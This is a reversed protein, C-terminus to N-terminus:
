DPNLRQHDSERYRFIRFGKFYAPIQKDIKFWPLESDVRLSFIIQDGHYFGITPEMTIPLNCKEKLLISFEDLYVLAENSKEHSFCPHTADDVKRKLEKSLTKYHLSWYYQQGAKLMEIAKNMDEPRANSSLSKSDPRPEDFAQWSDYRELEKQFSSKNFKNYINRIQLWM